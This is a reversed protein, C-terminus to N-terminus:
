QEPSSSENSKKVQSAEFIAQELQSANMGRIGPVKSRIRMIANTVDDVKGAAIGFSRVIEGVIRPSFTPLISALAIVFNPSFVAGIGATGGFLRGVLGRPLWTSLASGAIQGTVKAGTAEELSRIVSARFEKNQQLGQTLKNIASEKASSGSLSLASEIDEIFHTAQAYGKTMEDYEPVNKVLLDRVDNRVASVLAKSQASTSYFDDLRRKLLDLGIPTRDGPQSGWDKLTEIVGQIRSIEAPESITSRSFDYNGEKNVINFKKLNDDLSKLLPSIDLSQKKEGLNTLRTRYEAGRQDRLKNLGSRATEVLDLKSSQGRMAATLEPSPNRFAERIVEPGVGTTFGLGEAALTGTGKKIGSAAKGATKAAINIPNSIEGAKELVNATKGIGVTRAASGGASLLSGVDLAFGAPDNIVTEKLKEASGYRNKFFDVVSGFTEEDRTTPKGVNAGTGLSRGITSAAGALTSGLVEATRVPHAVVSAIGKVATGISPLINGPLDKFSTDTGAAVEVPAPKEQQVFMPPLGQKKREQLKGKLTEFQEPTLAM